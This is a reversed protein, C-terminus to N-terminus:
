AFDRRILAILRGAGRVHAAATCREVSGLYDSEGSSFFFM